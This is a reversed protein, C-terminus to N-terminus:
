GLISLRRLIKQKTYNIIYIEKTELGIKLLLLSLFKSKSEIKQDKIIRKILDVFQKQFKTYYHKSTLIQIVEILHTKFNNQNIVTKLVLKTFDKSNM